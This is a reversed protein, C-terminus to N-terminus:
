MNSESLILESTTSTKMAVLYLHLMTNLADNSTTHMLGNLLTSRPDSQIIKQITINNNMGTWKVLTFVRIILKTLIELTLLYVRLEFFAIHFICAM